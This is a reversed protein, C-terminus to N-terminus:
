AVPRDPIVLVDPLVYVSSGAGFYNIFLRTPNSLDPRPPTFDLYSFPTM